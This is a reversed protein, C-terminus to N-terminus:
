SSVNYEDFKNLTLFFILFPALPDLEHSPRRWTNKDFVSTYVWNNKNVGGCLDCIGENTGIISPGYSTWRSCLFM